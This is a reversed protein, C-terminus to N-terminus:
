SLEILLFAGTCGGYFIIGRHPIAEQVRKNVDVGAENGEDLVDVMNVKYRFLLSRSMRISGKPPEWCSKENIDTVRM